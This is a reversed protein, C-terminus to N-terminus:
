FGANRVLWGTELLMSALNGGFIWPWYRCVPCGRVWRGSVRAVRLGFRAEARVFLGAMISGASASGASGPGAAMLSHQTTLDEGILAACSWCGCRCCWQSCVQLVRMASCELICGVALRVGAARVGLVARAALALLWRWRSAAVGANQERASVQHASNITFTFALAGM